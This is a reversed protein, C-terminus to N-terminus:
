LSVGPDQGGDDSAWWAATTLGEWGLHLSTLPYAQTVGQQTTPGPTMDAKLLQGRWTLRRTVAIIAEGLDLFVTSIGLTWLHGKLTSGPIGM